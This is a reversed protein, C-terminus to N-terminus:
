LTKKLDALVDRADRAELLGREYADIRREAEAAWATERAKVDPGTLSDWLLDFLGDRESASFGLIESQIAAVSM